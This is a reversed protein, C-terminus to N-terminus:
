TIVAIAMVQVQLHSWTDLCEPQRFCANIDLDLLQLITHYRDFYMGQARTDQTSSGQDSVSRVQPVISGLAELRKHSGVFNQYHFAEDNWYCCFRVKGKTPQWLIQESTLQTM